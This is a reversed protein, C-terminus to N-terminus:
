KVRWRSFVSGCGHIAWRLESKWDIMSGRNGVVWHDGNALSRTLGNMIQDSQIFARDSPAVIQARKTIKRIRLLCNEIIQDSRDLAM